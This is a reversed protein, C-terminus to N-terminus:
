KQSKKWSLVNTNNEKLSTAFNHGGTGNAVFYLYPSTEPNAAAELSARGPNCIPAPPLGYYKYTNYPSDISLDKRTLARNLEQKGKTLAYIVTPDTQLKMGKILRNTFVSAVLRREDGIGTEKEIISALILLEQPTKLPLDDQATQWANQLAAAMAKQAQTILSDKSDGRMFSYTEPLLEGEKPSLSITGELLDENDILTLIQATTLGEPITLKRYFVDGRNMKQIVDDISINGSFAYEGAKLKKDLGTFRAALKFLWPNDIIGSESLLKAVSASSAGRPVLVYVTDQQFKPRYLSTKIQLGACVLCILVVVVLTKLTRTKM